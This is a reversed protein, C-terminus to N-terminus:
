PSKCFMFRGVLKDDSVIQNILDGFQALRFSLISSSVCSTILSEAVYEDSSSLLDLPRCPGDECEVVDDECVKFYRLPTTTAWNVLIRM